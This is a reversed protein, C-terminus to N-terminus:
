AAAIDVARHGEGLKELAEAKAPGVLDAVLEGARVNLPWPIKPRGM